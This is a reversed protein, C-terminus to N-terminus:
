LGLRRLFALSEETCRNPPTTLTLFCNFYMILLTVRNKLANLAPMNLGNHCFDECGHHNCFCPLVTPTTEMLSSRNNISQFKNLVDVTTHQLAFKDFSVNNVESANTVEVENLGPVFVVDKSQKIDLSGEHNKTALLDRLSENYIEMMCVSIRYSWDNRESIEKFLM